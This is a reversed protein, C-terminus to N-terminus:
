RFSEPQQHEGGQHEHAEHEMQGLQQHSVTDEGEGWQRTPAGHGPGQQHAGQHSPAQRGEEVQPGVRQGVQGGGHAAQLVPEGVVHLGLAKVM